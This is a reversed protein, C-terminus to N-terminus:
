IIAYYPVAYHLLHRGASALVVLAAGGKLGELPRRRGLEPGGQNNTMNAIVTESSNLKIM